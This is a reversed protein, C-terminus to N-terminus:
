QDFIQLMALLACDNWIRNLGQAEVLQLFNTGGTYSMLADVMDVTLTNAETFWYSLALGTRWNDLGVGTEWMQPPLDSRDQFMIPSPGIEGVAIRDWTGNGAPGSLDQEWLWLLNWVAEGGLVMMENVRSYRYADVGEGYVMEKIARLAHLTYAHENPRMARFFATHGDGLPAATAIRGHTLAMWVGGETQTHNLAEFFTDFWPKWSARWFVDGTAYAAAAIDGAEAHERGFGGGINPPGNMFSRLAGGPGEYFQSRLLACQAQLRRKALPDNDLYVLLKLMRSYRYIHQADIPDFNRLADRYAPVQGIAEVHQEHSKDQQAWFWPADHHINPYSVLFKNNRMQYPLTGDPNLYRPDSVRYSVGNDQYMAGFQRDNYCRMVAYAHLLGAREGSWLTEMGEFPNMNMGGTQGGYEVGYPNRFGGPLHIPTDAGVSFENMLQFYLQNKDDILGQRLGFVHSLDPMPMAQPFYGPTEPNFFSWTRDGTIPNLLEDVAVAWGKRQQLEHANAERGPPHLFYRFGREHRQALYHVESTSQSTILPLVRFGQFNFADGGRSEPWMSVGGWDEPISMLLRDFYIHWTPHESSANHYNLAVEVINTDRRFTMWMQAAGLQELTTTNPDTPMLRMTFECTFVVSGLRHVRVFQPNGVYQNGYVDIARLKIDTFAPNDVDFPLPPLASDRERVAFRQRTNPPLEGRVVQTLLEVTMLTGDARYAIPEWQTVLPNGTPDFVTFPCPYRRYSYGRPVPVAGHVVFRDLNPVDCELYAVPTGPAVATQRATTVFSALFLCALTPLILRM